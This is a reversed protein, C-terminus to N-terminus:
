QKKERATVKIAGAWFRFLKEYEKRPIVVLDDRPIDRQRLIVIAM